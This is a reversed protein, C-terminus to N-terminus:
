FHRPASFISSDSVEIERELEAKVEEDHTEAYLRALEDMRKELEERTADAMPKGCFDRSRPKMRAAAMTVIDRIGDAYTLQLTLCNWPGVAIWVDATSAKWSCPMDYTATDTQIRLNTTLGRIGGLLLHLEPKGGADVATTNLDTVTLQGYAREAFGFLAIIAAVILTKM